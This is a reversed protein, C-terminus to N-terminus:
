TNKIMNFSVYFKINDLSTLINKLTAIMSLVRNQKQYFYQYM